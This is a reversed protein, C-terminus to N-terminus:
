KDMEEVAIIFSWSYRSKKSHSLFMPQGLVLNVRASNELLNRQEVGERSLNSGRLLHTKNSVMLHFFVCDVSSGVPGNKESERRKSEEIAYVSTTTHHCGLVDFYADFSLCLSRM